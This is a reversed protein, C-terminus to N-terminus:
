GSRGGRNPSLRAFPPMAVRETEGPIVPFQQLRWREAAREIHDVDASVFNWWMHVPKPLADGGIVILRGGAECSVRAPMDPQIVAM